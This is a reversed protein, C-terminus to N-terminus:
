LKKNVNILLQLEQQQTAKIDNISSQMAAITSEDASQKAVTAADAQEHTSLNNSLTGISGVFATMIALGIAVMGMTPITVTGRSKM